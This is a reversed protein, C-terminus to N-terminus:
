PSAPSRSRDLFNMAARAREDGPSIELAREYFMKAAESYGAQLGCGGAFVLLPPEYPYDVLLNRVEGNLQPCRDSTLWQRVLLSSEYPLTIGRKALPPTELGPRHFVEQSALMRLVSVVVLAAAATGAFAKLPLNFSVAKLPEGYRRLMGMLVAFLAFTPMRLLPFDTFGALCLVFLALVHGMSEPEFKRSPKMAAEMLYLIGTMWVLVSLIGGEALLRMWDSTASRLGSVQPFGVGPVKRAYRPAESRWTGPGMGLFPNDQWMAVSLRIQDARDKGTGSTYDLLRSATAALPSSEKWDLGSWPLAASLLLALGLSLALAVPRGDMDKREKSRWSALAIGLTATVLLAMWYTRSRCVFIVMECVVLAALWVRSPKLFARVALIPLVAGVFAAVSNRNGLFSAPKRTPALSSIVNLSELLAGTAVAVALFILLTDIRRARGANRALQAGATYLALFVLIQLLFPFALSFSVGNVAWSLLVLGAAAAVAADLWVFKVKKEKSFLVALPVLAALLGVLWEKPATFALPSLGTGEVWYDGGFVALGLCAAVVYFCLEGTELRKKM